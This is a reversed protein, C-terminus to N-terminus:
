PGEFKEKLRLYEAHEPDSEALAEREYQLWSAPVEGRMGSRYMEVERRIRAAGGDHREGSHGASMEVSHAERLVKEIVAEIPVESM